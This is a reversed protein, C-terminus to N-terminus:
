LVECALLAVEECEDLPDPESICFNYAEECENQRATCASCVDSASRGGSSGCGFMALTAVLLATSFVRSLKM